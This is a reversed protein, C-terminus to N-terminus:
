RGDKTFSNAYDRIRQKLQKLEEHLVVFVKKLKKHKQGCRNYSDMLQALTKQYRAMDRGKSFELDKALKEFEDRYSELIKNLSRYSDYKDVYEQVYEQYQSFDKIPGKYEPADKDYKSYSSEEDSSSGWKKRSSLNGDSDRQGDTSDLMNLALAKDKISQPTLGLRSEQQLPAGIPAKKHSEGYGELGVAVKAGIEAQRSKRSSDALRNIQPGLEGHDVRTGQQLQSQSGRQHSRVLGEASQEPTKKSGANSTPPSQKESDWTKNGILKGKSLDSNYTDSTAPKSGLQKFSGKRDFKKKAPTQEPVIERLEGLELESLERQLMNSRGNAPRRDATVRNNDKPSSEVYSGSSQTVEKFKGVVDGHKRHHFDSPLSHKGGGGEKSSRATKKEKINSEENQTDRFAKDNQTSSGEHVNNEFLKRGYSSNENYKNSREVTDPAKTRISHDSPRHNSNQLDSSPKAPFTQNSVKQFGFSTDAERDGTPRNPSFNQHSGFINDDRSGSIPLQSLSEAKLRKSRDSKEDFKKADSSRKSKSRAIRESSDSQEHRFNDKAINERDDVLNGIITQRGQGKNYSFSSPQSGEALKLGENLTTNAAVEIEQGDGFLDKEIDVADSGHGDIDVDSGDGEIDVPDSGHGEIDIADSSHGDVATLETGGMIDVADLEDSDQNRDSGNQLRRVEGSERPTHSVSVGVESAPLHHRPEKEDDSLIDVEEDSGQKSNSSSTDSESDSSSGSASGAPTGSKSRSKSHSGSDSGSISSDSDSDSDSESASVAHGQSNDSAKREIGPSHDQINIQESTSLEQLKSNSQAREELEGLSSKDVFSPESATLPDRSDHLAPMKHHNDEPSSGSESSPKKLNEWDVGEKLIYLGPAQYLAIKKLIPEVKKASNPFTDGIAKELGKFSMGKPKEKLLTILMSQLDVPKAGGTGKRAAIEQIVTADRTPFEKESKTDNEKSKLQTPIVDESGGYSKTIKGAGSPSEAAGSREPPSPHSSISRNTISTSALGPIYTPKTAGGVQAPEVKRKKPPPEKKKFNSKWPSAEAAALQKIQNKMSPNAHDLVIAKRSKHKREAEESRKKVQKTTSEDLIRQVNLKRWACGSEVLMGNGDEGSKREEYIDCLDGFESSWTFKFEKGGVDIVNGNPNKPISDFKIRAKSGQAELRRIEDVLDPTLRIIMSFALPNNGSVLSFSEEVAQPPGAAAGTTARNRPASGMSLRGTSSAARHPQPPPFSSRNRSGGAGRGGGRGIKSSGSHM